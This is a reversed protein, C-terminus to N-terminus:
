GEAVALTACATGADVQASEPLAVVHGAETARLEEIPRGELSRLQALLQGRVIAAGPEVAPLLIGGRTTRPGSERRWPGGPLRSPHARSPAEVLGGSTLIGLVGALAVAVAGPDIARRPGVELTVAPIGPGNVLAGPLSHDLDFRQYRDLPYERLVTLGSATALAACAAELRTRRGEAVVRDIIAYPIACAADTHLDIVFSPARAVLDAWIRGAHRQAMGGRTGGPFARNPDTPDGPIHRTARALGAPNLSPYLHVTGRRLLSPLREILEFVVALGTCEDGHLNAAVVAVPGPSPSGVVVVPLAPGPGAVRERRITPVGGGPGLPSM